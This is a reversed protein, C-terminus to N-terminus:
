QGKPRLKGDPGRELATPSESGSDIASLKKKMDGVIGRHEGVDDTGNLGEEADDLVKQKAQIKDNVTKILAQMQQRQAPTISLAKTPDLQWKNIAAKLSEWNSRGGIVRNIEAENIRIGSGAGGAMVTMLEPAVLADAQPTNQNLTDQLRGMRQVMADIPARTKNIVGSNYQYSKDSRADARTPAALASSVIPTLTRQKEYAKAWAQEDPTVPQKLTARKTIDEYKEADGTATDGKPAPEKQIRQISDEIQLVQPDKSPDVGRKMADAVADAHLQALAVPKDPTERLAKDALARRQAEQAATDAIGAVAKQQETQQKQAAVDRAYAVQPARLEDSANQGLSGHFQSKYFLGLNKLFGQPKLSTYKSDNPDLTADTLGPATPPRSVDVPPAAATGLSSPELGAGQPVTPPAMDPPLQALSPDLSPPRLGSALMARQKQLEVHDVEDTIYNPM